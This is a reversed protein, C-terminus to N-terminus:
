ERRCRVDRIVCAGAATREHTGRVVARDRDSEELGATARVAMQSGAAARRSFLRGVNELAERTVVACLPEDRLRRLGDILTAMPIGRLLRLVDLADKDKLRKVDAEDTRDALKHLKAVLLASPGAVRVEFTRADGEELAGLVRRDHDILSPELGRAKRAVDKGHEGLRAGRRGAGGVAEPVLLDVPVTVEMKGVQRVCLWSGVQPGREFGAGRMADGIRPEERLAAPEIVVDADTTYPAVALDGEGTHIYIAQAGVLILADRHQGLAELADLLARRAVIYLPDPM